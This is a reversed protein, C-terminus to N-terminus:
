SFACLRWQRRVSLYLAFIFILIVALVESSSWMITSRVEKAFKHTQLALERTPSLVLARAGAQLSRAKLKDLIPVLFAATKGSGTRAMAVVDRGELIVPITKRQIPTPIQYGRKLVGKLIPPSLGMSQFGGSKKKGVTAADLRM